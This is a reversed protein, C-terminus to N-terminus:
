YAICRACGLERADLYARLDKCETDSFVIKHRGFECARRFGLEEDCMVCPLTGGRFPTVVLDYAGQIGTSKEARTADPATAQGSAVSCLVHLPALPAAPPCHVAALPRACPRALACPHDPDSSRTRAPDGGDRSRAGRTSPNIRSIRFELLPPRMSHEGEHGGRVRPRSFTPCFLPNPTRPHLSPQTGTDQPTSCVIWARRGEAVRYFPCRTVVLAVRFSSLVIVRSALAGRIRRPLRPPWGPAGAFIRRRFADVPM